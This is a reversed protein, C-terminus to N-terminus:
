IKMWSDVYSSQADDNHGEYYVYPITAKMKKLFGVAANLNQVRWKNGKEPKM